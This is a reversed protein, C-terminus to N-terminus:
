LAPAALPVLGLVMEMAVVEEEELTQQLLQLTPALPQVLLVEVLVEVVVRVRRQGAVEVELMPLAQVLTVVLQALVVMDPAALLVRRLQVAVVVQTTIELIQALLGVQQVKGLLGPVALVSM